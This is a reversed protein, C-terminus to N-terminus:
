KGIVVAGTVSGAATGEFRAIYVGSPLHSVEAGEAFFVANDIVRKGAATCLTLRGQRTERNGSLLLRLAGGRHELRIGSQKSAGRTDRAFRTGATPGITFTMVTDVESIDMIDVGSPTNDVWLAAPTTTSSYADVGGAKFCVNTRTNAIDNSAHVMEVLLPTEPYNFNNGRTNIHWITLGQDSIRSSLPFQQTYPKFFFYEQPKANRYYVHGVNPMTGSAPVITGPPLNGINQVENWGNIYLLYPCPMSTSGGGGMIDWTGTADGSAAYLDPWNALLHGMEHHLAGGTAGCTCYRRLTVGDATFSSRLSGSHNWMGEAWAAARGTNSISLGRVYNRSDTSLQSFDFGEAELQECAALILQSHGSAYALSDYYTFTHPARFVGKVIFQVDFKGGSWIQFYYRLSNDRPELSNFKKELFRVASDASPYQATIPADPFDWVVCLGRCQGAYLSVDKKAPLSDMLSFPTEASKALADMRDLYGPRTGNFLRARSAEIKSKLVDNSLRVGKRLGAAAAGTKGAVVRIGTSVFADGKDSLRAYCFWGTKSDRVVTYGERTEARIFFEDGYLVLPIRSGDPQTFVQEEGMYPRGVTSSVMVSFVLAAGYGLIRATRM